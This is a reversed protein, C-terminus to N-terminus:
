NDKLNLPKLPSENWGTVKGNEFFVQSLGYDWMNDTELMPSGQASRVDAKSSGLMFLKAGTRIADPNIELNLPNDSDHEWGSVVGNFFFVKSKGYHWVGEETKTPTGQATHV